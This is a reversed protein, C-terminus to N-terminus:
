KARGTFGEALMQIKYITMATNRIGPRTTIEKGDDGLAGLCAAYLMKKGPGSFAVSISSRPTPILGLFKGEPSFVQVGPNTSVYLRGAGDIAMGDGNVGGDLKAFERQNMATGDKQVDLAVISTLNTVYLTKEDKSLMIGNTRLNEGVPTEVAKASVYFAGGGPGPGTTFYVGGKRDAVLDNLRSDFVKGNFGNALVLHTPPPGPTLAAIAQPSKCLDPTGGPDTCSREVVIVRDMPPGIAVAGPGNASLFISAKGKKDLKMVHNSQEQAFLLGGDKTGLIGDANESVQWVLAWKAGADIVGPIATITVEKPPAPTPFNRQAALPTLSLVSLLFFQKPLSMLVIKYCAIKERLRLLVRGPLCRMESPLGQVTAAWSM